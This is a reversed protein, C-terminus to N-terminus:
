AATHSYALFGATVHAYTWTEGNNQTWMFFADSNVAQISGGAGYQMVHVNVRLAVTTPSWATCLCAAHRHHLAVAAGSLYDQRPRRRRWSAITPPGAPVARVKTTTCTTQRPISPSSPCTSAGTLPSPSPPSPWPTPTSADGGALFGCPTPYEAVLRVVCRLIRRSATRGTYM